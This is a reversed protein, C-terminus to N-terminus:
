ACRLLATTIVILVVRTDVIHGGSFCVITSCDVLMTPLGYLILLAPGPALPSTPLWSVAPRRMDAAAFRM